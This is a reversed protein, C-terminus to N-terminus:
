QFILNLLFKFIGTEYINSTNHTSGHEEHKTSRSPRSSAISPQIQKRPPPAQHHQQQQQYNKATHDLRIQDVRGIRRNENRQQVAEEHYIKRHSSTKANNCTSGTEYKVLHDSAQSKGSEVNNYNYNSSLFERRRRKSMSTHYVYGFAILLVSAVLIAIIVYAITFNSLPAHHQHQSARAHSRQDAYVASVLVSDSCFKRYSITFNLPPMLGSSVLQFDALSHNENIRFYFEVFLDVYDIQYSTQSDNRRSDCNFELKFAKADCVHSYIM